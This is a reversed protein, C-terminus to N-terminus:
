NGRAAALDDKCDQDFDPPGNHILDSVHSTGVQWYMICSPNVDHGPHDPDEHDGDVMPIGNNVLGLEHGLEHVLVTPEVSRQVLPPGSLISRITDKFMVISSGHYAYGLVSGNANDQDSHGDLYLIYLVAQGTTPDRYDNRYAIEMNQATDYTWTPAGQSPIVDDLVIQIGDPKDLYTQLTDQLRTLADQSPAEGQVYDVEVLLSKYDDARLFDYAYDGSASALNDQMASSEGSPGTPGGSSPTGGCSHVTYLSTWVAAFLLGRM